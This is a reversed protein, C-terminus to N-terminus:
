RQLEKIRQRQLIEEMVELETYYMASPDIGQENLWNLHQNMAPQKAFAPLVVLWIVALGVTSAFLALLRATQDRRSQTGGPQADIMQKGSRRKDSAGTGNVCVGNARADNHAPMLPEKRPPRKGAIPKQNAIM